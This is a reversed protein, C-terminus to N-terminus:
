KQDTSFGFAGTWHKTVFWAVNGGKQRFHKVLAHGNHEDTCSGAQGLEFKHALNGFNSIGPFIVGKPQYEAILLQNMKVCFDLHPSAQWVHGYREQLENVNGASWFFVETTVVRKSGAYYEWLRSRRNPRRRVRGFPQDGILPSPALPRDNFQRRGL